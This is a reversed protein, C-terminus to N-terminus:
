WQRTTTGIVQIQIGNSGATVNLNNSDGVQAASNSGPFYAQDYNTGGYSALFTPNAGTTVSPRKNVFYHRTRIANTFNPLVTGYNIYTGTISTSIKVKHGAVTGNNTIAPSSVTSYGTIYTLAPITTGGGTNATAFTFPVNPNGCCQETSSALPDMRIEPAGSRTAGIINVINAVANYEEATVKVWGNVNLAPNDYAACSACGVTAMAARIADGFVVNTCEVIPFTVIGNNAGTYTGSLNYVINGGGPNYTGAVRTLTLGNITQSIAVYSGGNGGTYPITYSGTYSAGTTLTGAPTQVQVASECIPTGASTFTVSFTCTQPSSSGTNVTYTFSGAATPIGSALLTVAQSSGVQSANFTGTSSFTVGNQTNTSFSYTGLASPTINVTKTNTSNMSIGAAYTGTAATGTNCTLTNFTAAQPLTIACSSGPLNFVVTQTVGSTGTYTGSITYIINGAGTSLIGSPHSFTLGNQMISDAAYNGGNGNTYPVTITGSYAQGNTFTSTSPSINAAVNGCNIAASGTLTPTSSESFAFWRNNQWYYYGPTIANAGTVTATNYVIMGDAPTGALTWVSTGNLPVRPAMFGRSNGPTLDPSIVDLQAGPNPNTTGIGVQASINTGTIMVLLLSCAQLAKKITYKKKM